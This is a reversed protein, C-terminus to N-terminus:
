NVEPYPEKDNWDLLDMCARSFAKKVKKKIFTDYDTNEPLNEIDLHKLIWKRTFELGDSFIFQFDHFLFLRM